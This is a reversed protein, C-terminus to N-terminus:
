AAQELAQKDQAVKLRALVWINHSLVSLGLHQERHEFGKQLMPNGTFCRGLISIRAETQSRRRQGQRFAEETLRAQLKHPDRPCVANYIHNTELYDRNAQSDFGRDGGILGIAVGLRQTIRKHSNQLLASDSPAQCRYLKWDVILGNEQETLLLSNGFEVEAGSKHRVIVHVDEEYLSLIKDKNAVKREGIIRDHANKIATALQDLVFTIQNLIQNARNIGLRIQHRNQELLTFHTMAHKAVRKVLKKMKRLIAKRNKKAGKKRRAHTMMICLANMQRMLEHPECPMRNKLGLKRIRKIAKCMTRTADRLLVWDVPFHINAQICTSDLYCQSFDIPTALVNQTDNQVSKLILSDLELIFSAPIMNEYDHITSKGPVRPTAFRNIRCFWKYLDSHSIVLAFRRLSLRLHKRLVSARIAFLANERAAEREKATLEAPQDTGFVSIYKEVSCVDLFFKIFTYEIGSNTIISDMARLLNCEATYEANGSVTPFGKDFKAQFPIITM